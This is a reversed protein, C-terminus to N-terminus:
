YGDRGVGLGFSSFIGLLKKYAFKNINKKFIREDLWTTFDAKKISFM